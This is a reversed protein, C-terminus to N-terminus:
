AHQFTRACYADADGWLAMVDRLTRGECHAHSCHWTPWGGDAEWVVTDSGTLSTTTHEDIWPCTVAHKGAGLDRRYAGHAQMWAVVDLTRYDGRGSICQHSSVRKVPEKVPTLAQATREIVSLSVTQWAGAPLTITAMRHPREPTETGKRNRSGYLRWIRAPNHVATDLRVGLDDLTERTRERLGRYLSVATTRWAPSNPIRCRYLAHAGNGSMGLAPMPWGMGTLLMVVHARAQLAAQLEADTSACGAPREPDLDFPIRCITVVDDDKLPGAIGDRPRNLTTYLNHHALREMAQLIGSVSDFWETRWRAGDPYRVELRGCDQIARGLYETGKCPQHAPTLNIM